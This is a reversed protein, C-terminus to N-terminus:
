WIGFRVDWGSRLITNMVPSKLEAPEFTFEYVVGPQWNEQIGLGEGIEYALIVGRGFGGGVHVQTPGARWKVSQRVDILTALRREEDLKVHLEYIRRMGARALVEWWRADVYKWTLVLDYLREEAMVPVNRLRNVSQIQRRLAGASVPSGQGRFYFVRKVVQDLYPIFALILFAMVALIATLLLGEDEQALLIVGYLFGAWVALYVLVLVFAALFRKVM